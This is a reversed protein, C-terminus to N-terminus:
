GNFVKKHTFFDPKKSKMIELLQAKARNLNSKSTGVSINLEQAIEHHKMEEFVYLNFVTRYQPSLDFLLALSEDPSFQEALTESDSFEIANLIEVPVVIQKEFYKRNYSLCSNICVKRIWPKFDFDPDYKDINKIIKLFTDNLMEKSEDESNSYRNCISKIYPFFLKFLRYEAAENSAKVQEILLKINPEGTM